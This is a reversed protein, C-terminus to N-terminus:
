RLVPEPHAAAQVELTQLHNHKLDLLKQIQVRADPDPVSALDSELIAIDHRQQAVLMPLLHDLSLFNVNTFHMPYAGLYPPTIRRRALFRVFDATATSDEEVLRKVQALADREQLGAWPYAENVYQLLSRGQRRVIEQLLQQSRADIM